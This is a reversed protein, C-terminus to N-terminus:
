HLVYQRVIRKSISIFVLFVFSYLLMLRCVYRFQLDYLYFRDVYMGLGLRVGDVFEM